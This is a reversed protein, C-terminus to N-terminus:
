CGVVRLMVCRDSMLQACCCVNYGFLMCCVVGDYTLCCCVAVVAAVDVGLMSLGCVVALVCCM